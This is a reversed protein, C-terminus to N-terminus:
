LFSCAFPILKGFIHQCMARIGRHCTDLIEKLDNHTKQATRKAAKSEKKVKELEAALIKIDKELQLSHQREIDASKASAAAQDELEKMDRENQLHREALM